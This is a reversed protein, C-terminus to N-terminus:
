SLGKIATKAQQITKPHQQIQASKLIVQWLQKKMPKSQAYSLGRRALSEANAPQQQQNAILALYLFTESSQPALRQAQMAFTQAQSWRGQRYAMQTKQMLSKFAPLQRGDDFQQKTKQEPIIVKQRQIEERDYRHITVGSSSSPAQEPSKTQKTSREENPQPLSQCGVVTAALTLVSFYKFWM